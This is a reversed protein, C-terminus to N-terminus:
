RRPSALMPRATEFLKGIADAGKYEVRQAEDAMSIGFRVANLLDVTRKFRKDM